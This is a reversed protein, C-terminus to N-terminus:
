RSVGAPVRQKLEEFWNQVLVMETIPLEPRPEAPQTILFRRGDLTVDYARTNVAGRIRREFLMRPRGATFATGLTVDVAMMKVIGGRGPLPVKYFMERRDPAWAPERGGETSVQQREGPGPYPQVYIEYRGSENSGYALWRGDPSFAAWAELRDMARLYLQQIGGKNASFVLHKGDPSLVM